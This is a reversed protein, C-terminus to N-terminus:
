SGNGKASLSTLCKSCATDDLLHAPYDVLTMEEVIWQEGCASPDAHSDFHHKRGDHCLTWGRQDGRM